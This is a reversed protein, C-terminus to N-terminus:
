TEGSDVELGIERLYTAVQRRAYERGWETGYVVDRQVSCYTNLANLIETALSPGPAAHVTNVGLESWMYLRAIADRGRYRLIVHACDREGCYPCM